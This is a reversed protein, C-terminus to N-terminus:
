QSDKIYTVTTVPAGNEAGQCRWGIPLERDKSPPSSCRIGPIKLFWLLNKWLHQEKHQKPDVYEKCKFKVDKHTVCAKTPQNSILLIIYHRPFSEKGTRSKQILLRQLNHRYIPPAMSEHSPFYIIIACNLAASNENPAM